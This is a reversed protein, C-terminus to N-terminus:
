SHCGFIGGSMVLQESPSFDGRDSSVTRSASPICAQNKEFSVKVATPKVEGLHVHTLQMIFAFLKM